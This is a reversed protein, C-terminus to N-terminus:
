EENEKKNFEIVKVDEDTFTAVVYTDPKDPIYVTQYSM